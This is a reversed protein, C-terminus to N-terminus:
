LKQLCILGMFRDDKIYIPMFKYTNGINVLTQGQYYNYAFKHPKFLKRYLKVLLNKKHFNFIFYGGQKLLRNAEKFVKCVSDHYEMSGIATIIDFSEEYYKTDTMDALYCNPVIRNNIMKRSFDIGVVKNSYNNLLKTFKGYGCGMDLIRKDIFDLRSTIINFYYDDVKYQNRYKDAIKNYYAKVQM